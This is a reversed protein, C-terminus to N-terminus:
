CEEWYNSFIETQTPIWPVRIYLSDLYLYTTTMKSGTDPYQAKVKYGEEWYSLRISKGEFVKQLGEGFNM